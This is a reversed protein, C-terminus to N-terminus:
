PKVSQLTQIFSPDFVGLHCLNKHENLHIDANSLVLLVSYTQYLNPKIRFHM